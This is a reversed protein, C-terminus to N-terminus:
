NAGVSQIIISSWGTAYTEYGPSLAMAVCCDKGDIKDICFRKSSTNFDHLNPIDLRDSLQRNATDAIVLGTKDVICVRTDAKEEAPLPTDNVISQALSDWNFLIGLVGLIAGSPEGKARVACSYILVRQGSVLPSPHM